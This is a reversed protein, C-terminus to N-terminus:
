RHEKARASPLHQPHPTPVARRKAWGIRVSPAPPSPTLWFPLWYLSSEQKSVRGVTLLRSFIQYIIKITPPAYFSACLSPPDPHPTLSHQTTLNYTPPGTTTNTAKTSTSHSPSARTSPSQCSGRLQPLRSLRAARPYAARTRPGSCLLLLWKLFILCEWQPHLTKKAHCLNKRSSFVAQGIKQIMGSDPLLPSNPIHDKPGYRPSIPM